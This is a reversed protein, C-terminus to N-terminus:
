CSTGGGEVAALTPISNRGGVHQVSLGAARTALKLTKSLSRKRLIGYTFAGHFIDGAGTTDVAQVSCAPVHGYVGSENQYILGNAGMTVVIVSDQRAHSRLCDLCERRASEGAIESMGSVQLAFRESSVLYKVKSALQETGPRLSGADLISVANPFADLAFTSSELEHGDFLLVQPYLSPPFGSLKLTHGPAKRNVITRSGNSTNVLIISVPTITGSRRVALTLDTGVVRFEDRIRQGYEDDGILGAFACRVGWSSLLYAATAAPGGGQEMMEHVEIKSNERPFENVFLSIDYSAHGVALVEIATDPPPPITM